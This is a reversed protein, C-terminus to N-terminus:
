PREALSEKEPVSPRAPVRPRPVLREQTGHGLSRPDFDQIGSAIHSGSRFVEHANM